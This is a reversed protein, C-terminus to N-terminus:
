LDCLGIFRYFFYKLACLSRIRCFMHHSRLWLSANRGILTAPKILWHCGVYRSDYQSYFIQVGISVREEGFPPSVERITILRIEYVILVNTAFSYKWKLSEFTVLRALKYPSRNHGLIHQKKRHVSEMPTLMAQSFHPFTRSVVNRSSM